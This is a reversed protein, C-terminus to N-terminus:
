DLNAKPYETKSFLNGADIKEPKSETENNEYM